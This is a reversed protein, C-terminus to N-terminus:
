RPAPPSCWSCMPAGSLQTNLAKCIDMALKPNSNGSFIKIDKGHAIM